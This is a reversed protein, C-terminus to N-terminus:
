QVRWKGEEWYSDVMKILGEELGYKPKWNLEKRAKTCDLEYHKTEASKTRALNEDKTFHYDEGTKEKALELIKDGVEQISANFASINYTNNIAKENKIIMRLFEVLDEIYVFNRKAFMNGVKIEPNESLRKIISPIFTKGRQKPGFVNSVRTITYPIDYINNYMRILMESAAKSYSYPELPDIRTEEKVSDLNPNGYVKETSAFIIRCSPNNVRINELINLTSDVNNKITEAPNNIMEDINLISALHIVINVDKLLSDEKKLTSLDQYIVNKQQSKEKSLSIMEHGENELTTYLRSGIYGAGGTILIKSM